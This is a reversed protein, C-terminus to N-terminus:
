PQRRMRFGGRTFDAGDIERPVAGRATQRSLADTEGLVDGDRLQERDRLWHPLVRHSRRNRLSCPGIRLPARRAIAHQAPHLPEELAVVAVRLKADAVLLVRPPRECGDSGIEGELVDPGNAAYRAMRGRADDVVDRQRRE